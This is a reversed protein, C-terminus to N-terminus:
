CATKFLQYTLSFYITKGTLFIAACLSKDGTKDVAKSSGTNWQYQLSPVCAALNRLHWQQRGESSYFLSNRIPLLCSCFLCGRSEKYIFSVKFFCFPGSFPPFFNKWYSLSFVLSIITIFSIFIIFLFFFHKFVIFFFIKLASIFMVFVLCWISSFLPLDLFFLLLQFESVTMM